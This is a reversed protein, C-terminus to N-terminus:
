YATGDTSGQLFLQGFKRQSPTDFV